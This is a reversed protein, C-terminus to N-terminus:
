VSTPHGQRGATIDHHENREGATPLRSGPTKSLSVAVVAVELSHIEVPQRGTDVVRWHLNKTLYPKILQPDFAGANPVVRALLRNLHVFGEHIMDSNQRCNGCSGPASNAFVQNVGALNESTWWNNYDEPVDGLFVLVSFSRGLEFKKVRLRVSWNWWQDLSPHVKFISDQPKALLKHVVKVAAEKVSRHDNQDTGAFDPYTYGLKDTNYYQKDATYLDKSKWFTNSSDWFPSLDTTEDVTANPSLTFTGAQDNPESTVQVTHNMASWVSLLRDVNCHHLYFIPDFAAVTPYSMHGNGGVYVHINDHVSELSNTHSDGSDRHNSFNPWDHVLHLMAMTNDTIQEQASSLASKLEDINENGDDDQHRLTTRYQDFPSDFPLTASQFRYRMLPNEVDVPKGDFNTITVTPSNIVVDPPVSNTSWDWYPLRLQTASTQWDQKNVHFQKAAQLAHQQILQELLLVYPRHWTPFLPSGHTCYGGFPWNGQAFSGAAGNWEVYPQGHIGSIGFFSKDKTENTGQLSQLARIYLTFFKDNAIFDNIELREAVGGTAGSVVIRDSSM